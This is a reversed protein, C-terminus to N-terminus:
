GAPTANLVTKFSPLFIFLIVDFTSCILLSVSCVQLPSFYSKLFLLLYNTLATESFRLM